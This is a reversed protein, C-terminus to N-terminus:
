RRPEGYIEEYREDIDDVVGKYIGPPLLVGRFPAPDGQNLLVEEGVMGVNDAPRNMTVCGALSSASFIVAVAVAFRKITEATSPTSHRPSSRM